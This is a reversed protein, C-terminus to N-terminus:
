RELPADGLMLSAWAADADGASEESARTADFKLMM